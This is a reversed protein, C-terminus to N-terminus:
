KDIEPTQKDAPPKGPYGYTRNRYTLGRFARYPGHKTPDVDSPHVLIDIVRGFVVAHDQITLPARILECHLAAKVKKHAIRVYPGVIVKAKIPEEKIRRFASTADGTTFADALMATEPSGELIHVLFEQRTEIAQLTRSPQKVNFSIIPDGKMSVSTFSSATMGRAAQLRSHAHQTDHAEAVADLATVVVVSNPMYRLLGVVKKSMPMSNYREENIKDSELSPNKILSAEIDDVTLEQTSDQMDTAGLCGEAEGSLRDARDLDETPTHLPLRQAPIGTRLSTQDELLQGLKTKIADFSSRSQDHATSSERAKAWSLIDQALSDHGSTKESAKGGLQIVPYPAEGDRRIRQGSASSDVRNIEVGDRKAHIEEGIVPKTSVLRFCVSRTHRSGAEARQARLGRSPAFHHAVNISSFGRRAAPGRNLHYFLAFFQQATQSLTQRRVNHRMLGLVAVLPETKPKRDGRSTRDNLLQRLKLLKPAAPNIM